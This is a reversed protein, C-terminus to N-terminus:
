FAPAHKSKRREEQRATSLLARLTLSLQQHHSTSLLARLTLSLQQHHGTSLL